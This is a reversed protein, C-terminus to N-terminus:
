NVTGRATTVKLFPWLAEGADTHTRVSQGGASLRQLFVTREASPRSAQETSIFAENSTILVCYEVEIKSPPGKLNIRRNVHFSSGM